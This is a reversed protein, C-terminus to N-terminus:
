VMKYNWFNNTERKTFFFKGNICKLPMRKLFYECFAIENIQGEDFWDVLSNGEMACVASEMEKM